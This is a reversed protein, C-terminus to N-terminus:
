LMGCELLMEYQEQSFRREEKPKEKESSQQRM